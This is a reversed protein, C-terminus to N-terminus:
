KSHSCQGWACSGKLSSSSAYMARMSTSASLSSSRLSSGLRRGSHRRTMSSDVRMSCRQASAPSVSYSIPEMRVRGYSPQSSSGDSRSFSAAAALASTSAMLASSISSSPSSAHMTSSSSHSSSQQSSSPPSAPQVSMSPWDPGVQLSALAADPPPLRSSSDMSNTRSSSDAAPAAASALFADLPSLSPGSMLTTVPAMLPSM